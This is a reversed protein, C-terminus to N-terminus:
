CLLVKQLPIQGRCLGNAKAIRDHFDMVPIMVPPSCVLPRIDNRDEVIFNSALRMWQLYALQEIKQCMFMPRTSVVSRRFGSM